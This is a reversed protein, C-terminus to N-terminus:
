INGVYKKMHSTEHRKVTTGGLGMIQSWSGGGQRFNPIKGFGVAWTYPLM